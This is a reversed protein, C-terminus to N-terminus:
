LNKSLTVNMNKSFLNCAYKQLENENDNILCKIKYGQRYFWNVVYERIPNNWKITAYIIAPKILIFERECKKLLLKGVGQGKCKEKDIAIIIEYENRIGLKNLVGIGVFKNDKIISKTNSNKYKNGIILGAHDFSEPFKKDFFDRKELTWISEKETIIRTNM